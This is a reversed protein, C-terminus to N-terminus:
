QQTMRNTRECRVPTSQNVAIYRGDNTHIRSGERTIFFGNYTTEVTETGNITCTYIPQPGGCGTSLFLSFAM